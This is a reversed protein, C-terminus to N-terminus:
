CFILKSKIKEHKKINLICKILYNKDIGVLDSLGDVDVSISNKNTNLKKEKAFNFINIFVNELYNDINNVSKELVVKVVYKCNLNYGNLIYPLNFEINNNDKYIKAIDNKIQM